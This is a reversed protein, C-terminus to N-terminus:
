EIGQLEEVLREILAQKSALLQRSEEV